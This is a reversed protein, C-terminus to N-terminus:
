TFLAEGVIGKSNVKALARMTSLQYLYTRRLITGEICSKFTAKAVINICNWLVGQICDVLAYRRKSDFTHRFLELPAENWSISM